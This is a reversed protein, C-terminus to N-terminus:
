SSAPDTVLILRTDETRGTAGREEDPDDGLQRLSGRARICCFLGRRAQAKDQLAHGVDISDYTPKGPQKGRYDRTTTFREVLKDELNGYLQPRAFDYMQPALHQLQNPLVRAIEVDVKEVDRSLFGVRKDGTLSLLAGQGLFTLARQYPAVKVTAVFPKGSLYGGTGQVGDKVTLFLYRGVPAQFKFGHSTNGGEESPVYSVAVPETLAVIDAGIESDDNWAYPRKDEPRQRPHRVPLLRVSVAGAFARGVVPSSSNLRLIQEPEYRANDVGTMRADSFRLSTRGPIRVVAELRGRTDNGGHAARVGKDIRLTMPTDDRPMTLAASHIFAALRFKDYAVTFHRSDPTLGLYEADKAVALSVHKELQETDVPHSFKVTAVLKKMNPDRQDQYFQSEAITATFPQSRVKFSYDGLRVQPALLGKRAMQVSFAGDVPWDDRPKFQLARDTTWYWAGAVAPSMSIGATVAKQVQKLPAASESFEITLPHILSIGKENYETLEPAMVAYTVYEPKPRTLYWALGGGAGALALALLVAHAPNAVLYRRGRSFQAGSWTILAAGAM